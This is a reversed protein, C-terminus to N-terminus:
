LGFEPIYLQAPIAQLDHLRKSGACCRETYEKIEVAMRIIRDISIGDLSPFFTGPSRRASRLAESGELQLPKVVSLVSLLRASPDTM